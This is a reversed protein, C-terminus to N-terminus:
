TFSHPLSASPDAARAAKRSAELAAALAEDEFEGGFQVFVDVVDTGGHHFVTGSDTYNWVDFVPEGGETVTWRELPVEALGNFKDCPIAFPDDGEIGYEKLVVRLQAVEHDLFQEAKLWPGAWVRDDEYDAGDIKRYDTLQYKTM